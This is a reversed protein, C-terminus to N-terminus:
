GMTRKGTGGDMDAPNRLPPIFYEWPVTYRGEFPIGAQTLELGLVQGM